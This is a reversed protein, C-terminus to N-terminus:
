DFRIEMWCGAFGHGSQGRPGALSIFGFSRYLARAEHLREMTEVYVGAYGLTKASAIANKALRRALGQRRFTERVYMRQIHALSPEGPLPAIGIGAVVQAPKASAPAFAALYLAKPQDLYVSEIAYDAPELVTGAEAEVGMASRVERLLDTVLVGEGRRLARIELNENAVM